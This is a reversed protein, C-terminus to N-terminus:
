DGRACSVSIRADSTQSTAPLRLPQRSNGVHTRGLLCQFNSGSLDFRRNEAQRPCLNRESGFPLVQVFRPCLWGEVNREPWTYWTGDHETRGRKFRAQYGPFPRASFVLTFGAQPRALGQSLLDMIHDAGSVFPERHLGVSPDDFVWLDGSKYPHIVLLSNMDAPAASLNPVVVNCGTVATLLVGAALHVRLRPSFRCIMPSPATRLFIARIAVISSPPFAKTAFRRLCYRRLSKSRPHIVRQVRCPLPAILDHTIENAM